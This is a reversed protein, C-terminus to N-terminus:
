FTRVPARPFLVTTPATTEANVAGIDYNGSSLRVSGYFDNTIGFAFLNTGRGKAANDTSLPAFTSANLAPINTLSHPDAHATNWIPLTWGCNCNASGGPGYENDYYTQWNHLTNFGANLAWQDNGNSQQRIDLGWTIGTGSFINYDSYIGTLYSNMVLLNNTASVSSSITNTTSAGLNAGAYLVINNLEYCNTNGSWSIFGSHNTGSTVTGLISNNVCWANSGGGVIAGNGWSNSEINFINNYVYYDFMQTHTSALDTFIAATTHVGIHKDFQNQYIRFGTIISTPDYSNNLIIIGDLHHTFSSGNWSNDWTDCHDFYNGAIVINTLYSNHDGIGITIGHNWNFIRNNLLFVNSQATGSAAYGLVGDGDSLNCNSVTIDSGGLDVPYGLRRSDTVAPNNHYINTVTLNQIIGFFLSATGSNNGGIGRSNQQLSLSTGNDTNQIIGNEGGDIIIWSVGNFQIAGNAPWCPSTFNAGSEFYITVYNGATGSGPLILSSTFTGCLHVTDGAGVQSGGSGWNAISNVWALSHANSCDSGTDGGSTTQSVYINKANVPMALLMLLWICKM